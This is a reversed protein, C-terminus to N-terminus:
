GSLPSCFSRAQESRTLMARRQPPHPQPTLERLRRTQSKKATPRYCPKSRSRERIVGSGCLRDAHGMVTRAVGVETARVLKGSGM